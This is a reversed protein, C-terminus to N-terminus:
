YECTIITVGQYPKKNFYPAYIATEPAPAKPATYAAATPAKPPDYAAPAPTYEEYTACIALWEHYVAEPTPSDNTEETATATAEEEPTAYLPPTEPNEEEPSAYRIDHVIGNECIIGSDNYITEMYEEEPTAFSEDIVPATETLGEPTEYLQPTEPAEEVTPATETTQEEVPAPTEEVTPATAEETTEHDQIIVPTSEEPAPATTETANPAILAATLIISKLM